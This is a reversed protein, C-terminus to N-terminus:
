QSTGKWLDPTRLLSMLYQRAALVEDLRQYNDRYVEVVADGTYDLDHLKQFLAGYSFAGQGPLLCDVAKKQDNLHLHALHPGFRELWRFPDTHGRVAQKLDLTLGLDNTMAGQVLALVRPDGLAKGAVNEQALRVGRAKCRELLDDYGQALRQLDSPTEVELSGGHFVYLRAGLIEMADLTEEFLSLYKRRTATKRAFLLPEHASSIVHVSAVTMQYADCIARLPQLEVAKQELPGPWFIEVLDVGAEGLFRLAELPTLEPFFCSTSIGIRM